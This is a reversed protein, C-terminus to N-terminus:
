NTQLMDHMVFRVFSKVVPLRAFSWGIYSYRCSDNIRFRECLIQMQLGPLLELMSSTPLPLQTILASWFSTPRNSNQMNSNRLAHYYAGCTNVM